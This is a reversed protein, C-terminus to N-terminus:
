KKHEKTTEIIIPHNSLEIKGDSIFIEENHLMNQYIGDTLPVNVEARNELNFIGILFQEKLAYSLVAVDESHHMNFNGDIFIVRKKLKSLKQIFSEISKKPQWIILDNEFLNPQHDIEHEQGGYILAPGKIFFMLAMMQMFHAHDRVKSRLRPQDHNEFSRLKIYNKPYIVEQRYIEELWRSLKKGDKLYDNMYDFIDYDYCIDFAEYMQSDSSCDFGMDRLYKIFGYQVSETLWIMLPNVKDVETRAEIWFDIPLLPAVDCRFGDIIGAWYKLVDILYNWVARQNFDLDTIDSWDGIRNAFEGKENKYFWDPKEYVLKSDRSTHNFVIDIMVNIGREHAEDVLHRFDDLTGLDEHIAFYDIISYPSGEHGKRAKKGIPHIPLCYLVDVGLLQIRDLDDIVGQFNQKKSHQRPFVQYFTYSRSHLDTQKAM